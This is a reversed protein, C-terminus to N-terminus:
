KTNYLALIKRVESNTINEEIEFAQNTKQLHKLKKKKLKEVRRLKGDAVYAYEEDLNIVLLMSQKDRGAKSYVISGKRIEM